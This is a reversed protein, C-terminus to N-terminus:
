SSALYLAFLLLLLTVGQMAVRAFMLQTSHREDFEGGRGMAGVGTILTGITILLAVLIVISLLNM